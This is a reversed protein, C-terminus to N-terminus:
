LGLSPQWEGREAIQQVSDVFFDQCAQGSRL